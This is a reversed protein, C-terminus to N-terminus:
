SEAVENVSQLVMRVTEIQSHVGLKMMISRLQTRVTHTSVNQMRAFEKLRCDTCLAELLRSESPSLAYRATVDAIGRVRRTATFVILHSRAQGGVRQTYRLPLVQFRIGSSLKYPWASYTGTARAAMLAAVLIQQHRASTAQLVGSNVQMHSSALAFLRTAAEDMEVVRMQDDVIVYAPLCVHDVLEGVAAVDGNPHDGLPAGDRRAGSASPSDLVASVFPRTRGAPKSVLASPRSRVGLALVAPRSTTAATPPMLTPTVSSVDVRELIQSNM